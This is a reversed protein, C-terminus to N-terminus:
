AFALDHKGSTLVRKGKPDGPLEAEAEVGAPLTISVATGNEDCRWEVRIEGYISQYAAKVFGIERSILPRIRVRRFGPEMAEIGALRCVIWEGVTALGIHDFANMQHPHFQGDYIADWREWTTTAGCEYMYGVSPYETSQIFALAEEELGLRCMGRLAVPTTATGWTIGGNKQMDARIWGRAVALEDGEILGFAAALLYGGQTAGRLRLDRGLFFTRFAQRIKAYMARYEAAQQEKGLYAAIMAMMVASCAFWATGVLTPDCGGYGHDFDSRGGHSLDLWDHATAFRLLRDSNRVSYAFYKELAPFAAEVPQRDDYMQMLLWTCHLAIDSQLDGAFPTIDRMMVAPAIAWFGGDEQQGDLADQLWKRLFLASHSFASATHMFLHGECGWGLREDRACVDTPMEFLNSQATNRIMDVVHGVVESGTKLVTPEPLASSVAVGCIDLLEADKLGYVHVYRFGHYTFEPQFTEEETGSLVYCDHAQASRNGFYYLETKGREMEEAHYFDVRSGRKGHLRAAIVGSFCRGFDIIAENDNLRIVSVPAYRAHEVVPVGPHMCPIHPYEAGTEARQWRSADYGSQKWGEPELTADYGTGHMIDAYLWPGTCAQWSEDTLICDATGDEYEVHLELSLRPKAGWWQRPNLGIYGAYWGDALVASLVNGGDTLCETADYARCYVRKRYDCVGPIMHGVTAKRGNIWVEALGMASVYLTARKVGPKAAFAKRLLAPKPLFPHNEGKQFDDACYYPVTPDYQDRGEDYGIWEGQWDASFIGYQWRQPQSWGSDAGNEDWIKVRWFRVANSVPNEEHYVVHTQPGQQKGSDWLLGDTWSDAWLSVQVQYATQQKGNEQAAVNWSLLPDAGIGLPQFQHNCHMHVAGFM